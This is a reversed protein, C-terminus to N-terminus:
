KEGTSYRAGFSGESNGRHAIVRFRERWVSSEEAIVPAM